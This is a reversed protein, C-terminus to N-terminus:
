PIIPVVLHIKQYRNATADKKFSIIRYYQCRVLYTSQLTNLSKAGTASFVSNIMFM